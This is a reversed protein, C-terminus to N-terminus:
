KIKQIYIKINQNNFKKFITNILTPEDEIKFIGTNKVGGVTDSIKGSAVLEVPQKFKLFDQLIDIALKTCNEYTDLQKSTYNRLEEESIIYEM